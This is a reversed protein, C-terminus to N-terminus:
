NDSQNQQNIMKSVCSIPILNLVSLYCMCLESSPIRQVSSFDTQETIGQEVGQTIGMMFFKIMWRILRTNRANEFNVFPQPAIKRLKLNNLKTFKQVAASIELESWEM